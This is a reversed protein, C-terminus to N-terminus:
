RTISHYKANSVQNTNGLAFPNLFEVNLKKDISTPSYSYICLPSNIRVYILRFSPVTLCDSDESSERVDCNNQPVNQFVVAGCSLRCTVMSMVSGFQM